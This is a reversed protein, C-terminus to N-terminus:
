IQPCWLILTSVPQSRNRRCRYSFQPQKNNKKEGNPTVESLQRQDETVHQCLQFGDEGIAQKLTVVEPDGFSVSSFEPSARKTVLSHLLLCPLQLATFINVGQSIEEPKQDCKFHKLLLCMNIDSLSLKLLCLICNTFSVKIVFLLGLEPPQTMM